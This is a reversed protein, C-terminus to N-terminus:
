GQDEIADVFIVFSRRHGRLTDEQHAAKGKAIDTEISEVWVVRGTVPVGPMGPAGAKFIIFLLSKCGYVKKAAGATLKSSTSEKFKPRQCFEGQAAQNRIWDLATSVRSYM